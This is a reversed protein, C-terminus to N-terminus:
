RARARMLFLVVYALGFLVSIALPLAAQLLTTMSWVVRALCFLSLLVGELLGVTAMYWRFGPERFAWVRALGFSLAAIGWGGTAFAAQYPMEQYGPIPIGLPPFAIMLVSALLDAIGNLLLVVALYREVRQDTM